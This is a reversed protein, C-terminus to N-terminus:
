MLSAIYALRRNRFLEFSLLWVGVASAFGAVISVFRGAFLPDKFLRLAAMVMWTFLPQKGDTLSIFRWAPDRGGIQSWRIYIAEDTFIPLNTLFSLRSVFYLIVLAITAIVLWYGKAKPRAM